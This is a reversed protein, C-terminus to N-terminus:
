SRYRGILRSLHELVDVHAGKAANWPEGLLM